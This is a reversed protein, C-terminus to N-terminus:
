HAAYRIIHVARTPPSVVRPTMISPAFRELMESLPLGIFPVVNPMSTAFCIKLTCPTSACPLTYDVPDSELRLPVAVSFVGRRAEGEWKKM